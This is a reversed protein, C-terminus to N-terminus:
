SPLIKGGTLIHDFFHDSYFEPVATYAAWIRRDRYGSLQRYLTLIFPRRDFFAIKRLNDLFIECIIVIQSIVSAPNM